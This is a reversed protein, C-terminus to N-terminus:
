RRQLHDEFNLRLELNQDRLPVTQEKGGPWRIWLAVPSKELGLVQAAGDQSWYGSGAQVTRCPGMRGGAYQVRLQAGVADPNAAHGNLVVRLGPKARRNVYLKTTGNNQTVALDVRGDHNFDALAAGRQEGQVEIGTVDADAPRFTGRGSGRLWLGRGGDDRSLDSPTGSFNQSLFLDETGDGDFDGVNVSFVPARQAENALPVWDFHSGRNLFVGSELATADLATAKEHRPGLIQRVTAKGFAQHTPFPDALEPFGSALWLRSRVPLWEGEHKWAEILEVTGDGNWDGYLLRLTPNPIEGKPPGVNRYLEYISNRGWNGVALDMRGDGDFDGTTIGTWWGNRGALGWQTTMDAFHGKHNRYVRVPGWEVALALDPQGDGDLDSFVAGSVLGLSKFPESDPPGPRLEGRENLWLASSVPEPYRGPQFRGGVFLDLDGDGEIDAEAMPGLSSKGALLHRPAARHAPSYISIQSEEEAPLEYNSVAVLLKRDGKGDPWGLVAGQDAPAPPLGELRGFRRGHDNTFVALNGGRGAAVILDEWGDANLDYWSVGPGLRSLRRPLLPQREWDDFANEVHVHGLLSSVEAFFPPGPPNGEAVAKQVAGAQDVEYIRNPQINTVISWDGNRWVVQLRMPKGAAADAAFVRMAQDGSLYRGGCIMEQSQTISGGTLRIRAGTGQTNPALGKLRVAVRGATSDNRYLSATTNLNNVVVDLDGDNDLDGLAMGYSVGEHDFGWERSMPAFTGDGRNHFAANPTRAHPRFQNSHRLQERSLRRQPNKLENQSDQDLVDYEFGNTVLLDEYGDLDVDLFIPCWSWDSAAVGAMFAAEAYSGDARGFFLMNRGYRPRTEIREREQPDPADKFLQTMRKGHERALMDVVVFDDHGDRDVDAFDIGMSARSTHRLKLPELARFTGKGSNIWVRDARSANDNCVYLDPIGDGNLDRFMVSLGWDRYPPVAKGEENVFVGPEFQIPTFHGRGDNRYLGDVEPLERVRGDALAEFRDKWRPLTTPQDNVKLVMWRGDRKIISFRTTPDFLHMVDIYHTCYLDLDGDGDIDALALSTASATRSLGSEKAEAWHGQGDNLFLRTGAAIGNVLLDLDGDGDVDAFAAGTSFQGAGGAEGLTVEEFRWNGRNRYLRNTGQLTCLYIDVWGDGDVDGLAVGAGSHAVANTLLVEGRLENTFWVGTVNPNMATFGPKGNVGPNLEM